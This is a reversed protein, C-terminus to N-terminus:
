QRALQLIVVLIEVIGFSARSFLYGMCLLLSVLGPVHVAQKNATNLPPAKVPEVYCLWNLPFFSRNLLNLVVAIDLLTAVTRQMSTSLESLHISLISAESIVILTRPLRTSYKHENQLTNQSEMHREEGSGGGLSNFNEIFGRWQYM